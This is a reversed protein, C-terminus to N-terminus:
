RGNRPLPDVRDARWWTREGDQFHILFQPQGFQMREDVVTVTRGTPRHIARHPFTM